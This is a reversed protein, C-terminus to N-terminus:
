ADLYLYGEDDPDDACDCAWVWLLRERNDNHNALQAADWCGYRNLHERILWAPGDFGLRKTWYAVAEDRSGSGSCDAICEAPLQRCSERGSCHSMSFWGGWQETTTTTTM